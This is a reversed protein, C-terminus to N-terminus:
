KKSKIFSFIKKNNLIKARNWLNDALIRYRKAVIDSNVKSAKSHYNRVRLKMKFIINDM